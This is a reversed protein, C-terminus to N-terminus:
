RQISSISKGDRRAAETPPEYDPVEESVRRLPRMLTKETTKKARRFEQLGLKERIRQGPERAQEDPCLQEGEVRHATM